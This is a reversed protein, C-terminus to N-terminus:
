KKEIILDIAEADGSVVIQNILNYNAIECVLNSSLEAILKKVDNIELGILAAMAGKGNPLANEIKKKQYGTVLVVQNIDAKLVSKCLIYLIPKNDVLLLLKNQNGMRKSSGAALITVRIKM